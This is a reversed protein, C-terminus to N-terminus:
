GHGSRVPSAGEVLALLRRVPALVGHLQVDRGLACHFDRFGTLANAGSVDCFTLEGLELVVTDVGDSAVDFLGDVLDTGALDLEGIIRVRLVSGVVDVVFSAPVETVAVSVVASALVASLPGTDELRERVAYPVATRDAVGTRRSGALM